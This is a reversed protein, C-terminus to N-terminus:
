HHPNPARVAAARTRNGAHSSLVEKEVIIITLLDAEQKWSLTKMQVNLNSFLKRTQLTHYRLTMNTYIM